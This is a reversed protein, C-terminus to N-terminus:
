KMFLKKLWLYKRTTIKKLISLAQEAAQEGERIIVDIQDFESWHFQGVGPKIVLDAKKLQLMNYGHSTMQSARMIIDIMNDFKLRFDLDLSIDVAIVIDAGMEFAAKIPVLQTICGDLLRYDSIEVPPLFGPLSSSAAVAMIIDGSRFLVDQGSMLDSAVIGLPIKADEINEKNLLYELSSLFRKNNVLSTRRYALNIVLREKFRTVIQAFFNDFEKKKNIRDIGTKKFLPTKLYNQIKNEILIGNLNQAYMAGILSGASTGTIIHVPIKERDFVKLVGIHALGRAGGGGLALGVKPRRFM